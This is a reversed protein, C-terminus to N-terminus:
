LKQKYQVQPSANFKKDTYDWDAIKTVMFDIRDVRKIIRDFATDNGAKDGWNRHAALLAININQMSLSLSDNIKKPDQARLSGMMLMVPLATIVARKYLPQYSM